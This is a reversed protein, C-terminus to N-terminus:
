IVGRCEYADNHFLWVISQHLSPALMPTVCLAFLNIFLYIKGDCSCLHTQANPFVLDDSTVHFNKLKMRRSAGQGRHHQRIFTRGRTRMRDSICQQSGTSQLCSSFARLLCGTQTVGILAGPSLPILKESQSQAGADIRPTWGFLASFM